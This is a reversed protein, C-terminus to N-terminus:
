GKIARKRAVREQKRKKRLDTKNIYSKTGKMDLYDNKVRAM